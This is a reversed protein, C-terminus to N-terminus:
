IHSPRVLLASTWVQSGRAVSASRAVKVVTGSPRGGGKNKEWSATSGSSLKPRFWSLHDGYDPWEWSVSNPVVEHLHRPGATHKAKPAAASIAWRMEIHDSMRWSALRAKRVRPLWHDWCCCLPCIGCCLHKELRQKCRRQKPNVLALWIILSLALQSPDVYSHACLFAPVFQSCWQLLRGYITHM